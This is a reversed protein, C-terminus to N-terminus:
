IHDSYVLCTGADPIDEAESERGIGRVHPQIKM